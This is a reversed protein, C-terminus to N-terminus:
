GAAPLAVGLARPRAPARRSGSLFLEVSKIFTDVITDPQIESRLSYARAAASFREYREPSDWIESFAAAWAEVPADHPLLLGGPGVAEPLGGQTSALVPIGNIHAETAVRGWAEEVTSPALLLRARAYLPRMDNTPPNIRINGALQARRAIEEREAASEYWSSVFEFQVDPRAAALAFATELGKHPKTNVYLVNAPRMATEYLSRDILPRIVPPRYGAHEAMRRSTFESNALLGVDGMEAIEGANHARAVEHFYAMRPVGLGAFSHLIPIPEASQAIVVDPKFHATVEAAGDESPWGRYVPYGFYHDAPFRRAPLLARAIRNNLVLLSGDNNLDCIVAVKVGRRVLRRCLEHTNRELGGGGQPFHPWKAALLIRM